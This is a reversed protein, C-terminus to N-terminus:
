ADMLSSFESRLIRNQAIIAYAGYWKWALSTFQDALGQPRPGIIEGYEGVAPDFVKAMSEPGGFAVPYVSDANKVTDGSTHPFRLGGNDGEGIITVTTGGPTAAVICSENNDYHTNATEVTGIGLRMGAVINTNATVVITTAMPNTDGNLTTAVSSANVVGANWFVKAWPTVVIKFGNLEGLEYNLIVNPQSYEGVALIVADSFLDSFAFPHMLSLWKGGTPTSFMPVKMAQLIVSANAFAKKTINHTPTGADLSARVNASKTLTGTLAATKALLDISWMMNQGIASFARQTFDTFVQDELKESFLIANTRSTPTVTATADVFQTTLIDGTEPIVQTSPPLASLFPVVISSGKSINAMDKAVPAAFQDYVRMAAAAELYASVYQARISNTLTSTGTIAM